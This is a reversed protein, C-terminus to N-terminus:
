RALNIVDNLLENISTIIRSSGQFGRQLSILKIFDSAIDTTSLELAGAQIAGFQGTQPRGIVPDGSTNSQVYLGNGRRELAEPNAFNAMALRGISTVTGNDLQAFLSGDVQVSFSVVNGAGKGDQSLSDVLSKNDFATFPELNFDMAEGPSGNNWRYTGGAPSNNPNIYAVADDIVPDGAVPFVRSGDPGFTMVSDLGMQVPTGAGAATELESGDVYARVVWRTAVTATPAFTNDRFFFLNVPHSGGLSDFITVPVQFDVAANLAQFSGFTPLGLPTSPTTPQGTIARGVSGADLNGTVKINKTRVDSQTINQVSLPQIGQKTVPFGMVNNGNQDLLDGTKSLQFNGARTYFRQGGLDQVVFFGAGDIATDLGRGTFELTGQTFVQRVTKVQSGSGVTLGGSGGGLNGALLDTFDARSAKYGTTNSNAINDGLVGIATGHSSIGARGAFLGNAISPV